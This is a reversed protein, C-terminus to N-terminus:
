EFREDRGRDRKTEWEREKAIKRTLQSKLADVSPLHEAAVLGELSDLLRANADMIAARSGSWSTPAFRGVFITLVSVPDPAGEFLAKAQESWEAPNNETRRAFTVFSAARPYHIEPDRNCWDILVTCSIEDTPNARHDDMEDLVGLTAAGDVGDHQFFADLVAISQVSLLAGILGDNEFAYTEYAAVASKLRLAVKAAVPGAEPAILCTRAIQALNYDNRQNDKTFEVRLLLEQGAEILEPVYEDKESNGSHFHMSLIELAVDVGGSQDMILLLLDRLDSGALQDTTRGYALDRYMWIPVQGSSLVRKLRDVGRADLGTGLHLSPVFPVLEAQHLSADLIDQAIDREIQWLQALYGKLIQVNRQELPLQAFQHRLREWAALHNPTASAFGRGFAWVRIGGRLLDPLLREFVTDDTAAAAGLEFAINELREWRSTIDNGVEFDELDIGAPRDGLVVAQVREVLNSPKLQIELAALRSVNEVQLQATDFRITQRCAVWGERWFAAAAIKRSLSELADFMHASTWLGRFHRALLSRLESTLTGDKLALQEILQLAAGYWRTIDEDNRPRYGYDRSRAGFEFRQGASFHTTKLFNGLAALGLTQQKRETSRLMQAIVRLRQEVTAHTGSLYITFVSVFTDSAEKADRDEASLTAAQALLHCSREFLASDYALSRLLGRNQWWISAATEMGRSDARELAALASEPAVPAVNGFMAQGLENLAATDGLIGGPGLWKEVISIARPHQHLFSLRRSFSRALRDTGGTVLQAEILDYPIDELARAALRNAIAHPLVARWVSRQQILDRRLLEGVHRYLDPAPQNALLALRPLEADDGTLAEGQFSYVLACVQAAVLLADNADHRQRFLRQFLEDDSLGAISESRGVTGALALAIRANGGSAEAITRTDVQSLHPYRRGVLTQILELSSTDLTVVQTGEPQDDRVDYEITLVSVTSDAASCLDSLRRHLDPPCNDVILIARTRNAILDAALGSPQPDPNDSLNTYVALSPPLPRSGIKGDFLAQALRTKGVGSLGVLRVMKRSQALEDRLEDIADAVPRAPVDRHNSFYLRLKDDLLYESGVGDIASSWAGYARWGRVSRGVREKVWTILGPHLRVWTALRTRDYFDTALKDANSGGSLAERIADRRSRLASDAVSGHSSVIIYAGAEDALEQIVPRIEGTPRMEGLIAAKAMDPTKVQFGTSARPVFGEITVHPMLTM